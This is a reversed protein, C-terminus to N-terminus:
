CVKRVPSEKHTMLQASTTCYTQHKRARAGGTAVIRGDHAIHEAVDHLIANQSSTLM